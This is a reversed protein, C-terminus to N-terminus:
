FTSRLGRKKSTHSYLSLIFVSIIFFYSLSMSNTIGPPKYRRLINFLTGISSETERLFYRCSTRLYKILYFKQYTTTYRREKQRHFLYTYAYRISFLNSSQVKFYLISLKLYDSAFEQVSIGIFTFMLRKVHLLIM